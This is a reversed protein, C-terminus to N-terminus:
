NLTHKSFSPLIEELHDHVPMISDSYTKCFPCNYEKLNVISINLDSLELSRQMRINELWAYHIIHGCTKIVPSYKNRLFSHDNHTRPGTFIKTWGRGNTTEYASLMANDLLNSHIISCVLGYPKVILTDPEWIEYWINCQLQENTIIKEEEYKNNHKVEEVKVEDNAVNVVINKRQKSM